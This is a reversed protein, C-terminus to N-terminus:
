HDYAITIWLNHKCVTVPALIFHGTLRELAVVEQSGLTDAKWVRVGIDTAWLDWPFDIIYTSPQFRRLIAFAATITNDKDIKHRARFIRDIHIPVRGDIYAYRASQGRHEEAAGHRRRKVWVHSFSDVEGSFSIENDADPTSVDPLVIFQPGWLHKLYNLVLGYYGPGLQRLFKSKPFQPF